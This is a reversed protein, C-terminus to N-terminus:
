PPSVVPAPGSIVNGEGDVRYVQWEIRPYKEGKLWTERKCIQIREGKKLSMAVLINRVQENCFFTKNDTTSFMFRKAGEFKSPIEKGDPYALSTIVPTNANIVIEERKPSTTAM